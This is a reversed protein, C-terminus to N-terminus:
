NGLSDSKGETQLLQLFQQESLFEVQNGYSFLREAQRIKNSKIGQVWHKFAKEGLVLFDTQPNVANTYYGGVETLAKQAAARPMTQLAGTFVIYKGYLPHHKNIRSLDVFMDQRSQKLSHKLRGSPLYGGPFVKGIRIEFQEEIEEFRHLGYNESAKLLIKACALADSAASHHKLQINFKKSLASLGYSTLGKWAKRAIMVSCVYKFEPFPLSYQMLVHRLVSIDFSANHAVVNSSDFFSQVEQWVGDFELENAVKQADIGHIQTNMYHFWNDKPKVLRSLTEVVEGSQVVAIGIECVSGRHYNATEFDLAVFDM